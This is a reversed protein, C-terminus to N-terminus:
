LKGLREMMSRSTATIKEMAVDAVYIRLKSMLDSLEDPMRCMELKEFAEDIRSLGFSDVANCLEQLIQLLEEKTANHKDSDAVEGYPALIKKYSRYMALLEPTRSRITEIDEANGCKEMEFFFQALQTAGITRSASKLGHVEVTYDRLRGEEVCQEIKSAKVDILRYYDGLLKLFLEQSGSNKIGERVDLGEIKPVGDPRDGTQQQTRDETQQEAQAQVPCIKDEPLWRRIKGCIVKYDIPKAVFDNMGAKRFAERADLVANATLAIIPVKELWSDGLARIKQTTEIGDMVPMMHDMFIIDYHNRKVMEIARSGSEATYIKMRLPKLLGQAVTLNMATDDVILIKADPATFNQEDEKKEPGSGSEHNLARCFSLTSLPRNVITVPEDWYNETIPNQILCIVTDNPIIYEGETEYAKLMKYSSGDVFLFDVHEENTAADHGEIYDLGYEQALSSIRDSLRSDTTWASVVAGRELIDDRVRAAQEWDTVKQHITFDFETGIGYESQVSIEGGMLEIFQKSIALGLGTGEKNRNRKTDVQQFLHFLRGLDEERIGQGTDKVAVHLIIGDEEKKEIKMCLSVSGSETFKIANNILNVLIQRIRGPDGYMRRPLKKDIDFLLAVPKTGIMNLFSMGIDNLISMMDYEEEILEINGSEIKSFDLINNILTLLAQGSNKINNLYSNELRSKTNRLLIDTMGVIANMPTRIDHSMNSLFESKARNARVAEECARDTERIQKQTLSYFLLFIGVFMVLMAGISFLYSATRQENLGSVVSDLINYSTVTILNWDAYGLPAIYLYKEEDGIPLIITYTEQCDIARRIEAVYQETSKEESGTIIEYQREFFNDHPVSKGKIIFDGNSRIIYSYTDADRDGLELMDNVFAIDIGGVLALSKEGNQMEYECPYGLMVINEDGDMASSWAIDQRGSKLSETFADVDYIKLDDGFLVDMNGAEDMLGLFLFKRAIGSVIMAERLEEGQLEGDPPMTAVISEVQSLKIDVVARFHNTIQTSMREIYFNAINVTANESSKKMQHMLFLFISISVLAVVFFGLLLLRLNRRKGYGSKTKENEEGM